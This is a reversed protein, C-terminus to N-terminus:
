RSAIISLFSRSLYFLAGGGVFEILELKGYDGKFLGSILCLTVFVLGLYQCLLLFYHLFLKM